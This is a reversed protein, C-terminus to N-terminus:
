WRILVLYQKDISNEIDNYYGQKLSMKKTTHLLLQYRTQFIKIKFQINVKFFITNTCDEENNFM